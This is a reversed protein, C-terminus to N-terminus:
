PGGRSLVHGRNVALETWSDRGGDPWAVDVRAVVAADGVGFTVPLEVQSLYSRTPMVTRTQQRGAATVVIRAGIAALNDGTGRLTFRVWSHGFAQDNRLLAFRGGAQTLALDLDGDNDIDAYALGRGVRPTGLDGIDDALVFRRPCETGCNWFLQAPQAYSQSAQVRQIEPEVHGNAAILDLRGDLDADVFALGFTLARRSPAGIGTVIADDSFVNEGTRTVYFSSMENAFNGIAVGLLTGGGFRLADVGMAGTASGTNDFALGTDIGVEQFRGGGQNHFVFNRVTDNAVVLDLHGDDDLDVPLVALGKGVPAGTSPNAVHIGADASVDTFVGGDNRYLYSDTGPFDTPPGYARGIGTLRFDVARDIDPSWGVYNCVFLDLDGDGDADFFAAGTSWADEAGPVGTDATVDEFAVGDRNRLLLNRGVATVFVDVHGDADYDGIAVGMGYLSAELGAESSVDDFVGDGRNRFLRLAEQARGDGRWSWEGSDVLLLDQDGDNDYDLFAVGGGMTEPLLREGYAGTVHEFDIGAEESVETFVIRPVSVPQATPLVPGAPALDDPVDTADGDRNALVVVVIGLAVVGAIALSVLLARRIRAEGEGTPTESM